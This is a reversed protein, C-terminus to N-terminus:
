KDCSLKQLARLVGQFKSGLNKNNRSLLQVASGNKIALGRFGDFKIEYVWNDGEPLKELLRCKMPEVFGLKGPPLIALLKGLSDRKKTTSREKKAPRPM